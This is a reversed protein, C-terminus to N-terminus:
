PAKVKSAADAIFAAVREPQSVMPVHSSALTITTAHIKMAMARELDPQIMKDNAAVNYWNPKTQWAANTLKAAFCASTTVALATLTLGGLTRFM